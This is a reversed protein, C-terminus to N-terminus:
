KVYYVKKKNSKSSSPNLSLLIQLMLETSCYYAFAAVLWSSSSASEEVEVESGASEASAGGILGGTQRGNPTRESGALKWSGWWVDYQKCCGVARRGARWGM